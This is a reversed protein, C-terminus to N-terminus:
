KHLKNKQKTKANPPPPKIIEGKWCSQNMNFVTFIKIVNFQSSSHTMPWNSNYLRKQLEGLIINILQWGLELYKSKEQALGKVNDKSWSHVTSVNFVRWLHKWLRKAANTHPQKWWRLNNAECKCSIFVNRETHGQAIWHLDPQMWPRPNAPKWTHCSYSPTQQGSPSSTSKERLCQHKSPVERVQIDTKGKRRVKRSGMVIKRTVLWNM